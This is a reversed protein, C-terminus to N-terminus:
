LHYKLKWLVCFRGVWSCCPAFGLRMDEVFSLFFRALSAPEPVNPWKLDLWAVRGCSDSVRFKSDDWHRHETEAVSFVLNFNSARALFCGNGWVCVCM